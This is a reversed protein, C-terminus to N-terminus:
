AQLDLFSNIKKTSVSVIPEYVDGSQKKKEAVAYFSNGIINLLVKGVEEPVINVKEVTDDFDTQLTTYFSKDKVKLRNYCLRLYQDTFANIDTPEKTGTSKGAHQLMGQVIADALKGHHAIKELNEKADTAIIKVDSIHGKDLQDNMEKLLERTVEAFNTVFNLPNKIEHAIGSTLEGLSAMKERQILQDQISKLELLTQALNDRQIAIEEKQQVVEATRLKVEHELFRKEKILSHSRYYVIGWIAGAVLIMYFAYAWWTHWWPPTIIITLMKEAWIGDSSSTKIKFVYKGPAMNFYGATKEIGAKRWKKDYGELMFYHRNEDISSYHIGAFDISFIDQKYNLRIEEMQEIPKTLPTKGPKLTIDAIKFDTIQLQPAIANINLDPPFFHYYGTGDGFLLEGRSTKYGALDYSSNSIVGYKRGYIATEDRSPNLKIIASQSGVWLNKQNDEVISVINATGLESTPDIFALFDDADSNRRYLGSQTGVWIIGYSDQFIEAISSGRLYHKFHGTQTDLLNIGGSGRTGVWLNGSKDEFIKYVANSGLSNTDLSNHRYHRTIGTQRDMLDLGGDTAIWFAGHRDEVISLIGGDSISGIKADDHRFRTFKNTQKNLLDLGKDTGAWISGRSDEYVSLVLNSSISVPDDSNNVFYQIINNKKDRRILGTDSAMWLVGSSDEHFAHVRGGTETHPISKRLPDIHYVNSQTTIWIVGERSSTAYWVTNEELAKVNDNEAEYRTLKSTKPDYHNLGALFAGIWIGGAKDETIFSIGHYDEKVHPGSLKEPHLSDYLYRRFTGKERDMIHLGDGFTGVWFNAHSDEYIARVKNDLLTNPNNAQHMYRVFKGTKKDMRNLGGEGEPTENNYPSGCGVWLVGKKDQYLARVQDNSLSTSDNANKKFRIFKGTKKDLRNLGGHTGIWLTGENDELIVTVINNSLSSSDGPNNRYHTFIGTSPDFRDLGSGVTGIWIIDNHDIYIYELRSPSISQHNAPDNKYTVVHYGDYRYLSTGTFWMYGKSDQAICTIFGRVNEEFLYTRTFAFQQSKAPSSYVIFFSFTLIFAFYNLRNKM